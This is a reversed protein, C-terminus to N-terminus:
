GDRGELVTVQHGLLRHSRGNVIVLLEVWDRVFDPGMEVNCKDSFEKAEYDNMEIVVDRWSRADHVIGDGWETKVKDGIFIKRGAM